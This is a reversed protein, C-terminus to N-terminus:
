LMLTPWNSNVSAGVQSASISVGAIVVYDRDDDVGDWTLALPQSRRVINVDDRNLWRFASDVVFGASFSGIDGGGSGNNLGFAGPNLLPPSINNPVGRAGLEASYIGLSKRLLRGNVGPGSLELSPGADLPDPHVSDDVAVESGRFSYVTCSGYPLPYGPLTGTAGGTTSGSALAQELSFRSFAALGSDVTASASGQAGAVTVDVRSLQISGIRADKRSLLGQVDSPSYGHADSCLGGRAAVSFTGFNGVVNGARVVIPVYCGEIGAPVEFAIQDIGACCGSRGKYVVKARRNAVLVEVDVPLDGPLPGSREDGSVAGLGTGWLIMTQGPHASEVLSNVPRDSESNVNQVITPGTGSQNRTFIGFSNRVINIPRPSSPQGNFTLVVTGAGTPTTSPLIAAVQTESAYVLIADVTTSGVTVRVTTGGLGSTSPLPYRDATVLRNPGLNRGFLVFLSGQAIGSSPLGDPTYSAANVIGGNGIVPQTSLTESSEVPGITVLDYGIGGTNPDGSVMQVVVSEFRGINELVIQRGGTTDAISRAAILRGEPGFASLQVTNGSGGARDTSVSFYDASGRSGSATVFSFSIPARYDIRNTSQNVPALANVGSTAHNVGFPVLAAGSVILGGQRYHNTVLSESTVASGNSFSLPLPAEFDFVNRASSPPGSSPELRLEILIDNNDDDFQYSAADDLRMRWRNAGISEIVRGGLGLTNKTDSFSVTSAQDTFNSFAWFARNNFVTQIGFHVTQGANVARIFVENVPNPQSPLGRILPSFSAESTGLGFVSVSGASGGVSKCYLNGSVPAVFSEAYLGISLSAVM